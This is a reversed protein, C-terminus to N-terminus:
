QGPHTADYTIAQQIDNRAAQMDAIAKLRYGNYDHQDRQLQDIMAELRRRVHMLNRASARENRLHGGPYPSALPTPVAIQANAPAPTSLGSGTISFALAATALAALGLHKFSHM